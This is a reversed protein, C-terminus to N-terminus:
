IPDSRQMENRCKPARVPQRAVDWVDGVRSILYAVAASKPPRTNRADKTCPLAMDSRMVRRLELVQM